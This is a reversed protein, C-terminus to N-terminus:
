LQALQNPNTLACSNQLVTFRLLTEMLRSNKARLVNNILSMAIAEFDFIFPCVLGFAM